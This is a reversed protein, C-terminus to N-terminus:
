KGCHRCTLKPLVTPQDEEEEEEGSTDENPRTKITDLVEYSLLSPDLQPYLSVFRREEQPIEGGCVKIEINVDLWEISIEPPDKRMFGQRAYIRKMNRHNYKHKTKLGGM